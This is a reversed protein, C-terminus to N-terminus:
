ARLSYKFYRIASMPDDMEGKRFEESFHWSAQSFIFPFWKEILGGGGCSPNSFNKNELDSVVFAIHHKGGKMNKKDEFNAVAAIILFKGINENALKQAEEPGSIEIVEGTEEELDILDNIIVRISGSTLGRQSFGMLLAVARITNDCGGPWPMSKAVKEINERLERDFEVRKAERMKELWVKAEMKKRKIYDKIYGM